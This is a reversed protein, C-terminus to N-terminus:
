DPNERLVISQYTITAAGDSAARGGIGLWLETPEGDYLADETELLQTDNFYFLMDSGIRKIVLSNHSEDLAVIPLDRLQTVTVGNKESIVLEIQENEKSLAARYHQANQGVLFIATGSDISFQWEASFDGVAVSIDRNICAQTEGGARQVIVAGRMTATACSERWQSEGVMAIVDHVGESPVVAVNQVTDRSLQPVFIFALIVMVLIGIAVPILPQKEKLPPSIPHKLSKPKKPTLSSKEEVKHEQMM